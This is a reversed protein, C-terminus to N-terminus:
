FVEYVLFLFKVLFFFLLAFHCFSTVIHHFLIIYCIPFFLLVFCCFSIVFCHFLLFCWPVIIIHLWLACYCSTVVFHLLLAFFVFCCLLTFFLHSLLTIYCPTFVFCFLLAFYCGVLLLSFGLIQKAKNINMFHSSRPHHRWM